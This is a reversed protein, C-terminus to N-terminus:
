CATYWIWRSTPAGPYFFRLVTGSSTKLSARCPGGPTDNKEQGVKLCKAAGDLRRGGTAIAVVGQDLTGAVPQGGGVGAHVLAERAVAVGVRCNQLRVRRCLAFIARARIAFKESGSGGYIRFAGAAYAYGPVPTLRYGPTLAAGVRPQSMLWRPEYDQFPALQPAKIRM